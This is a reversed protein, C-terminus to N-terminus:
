LKLGSLYDTKKSKSHCGICNDLPGPRPNWLLNGYRDRMEYRWNDNKTDYGAAMKTMVVLGMKGADSYRAIAVSGEAAKFNSKGINDKLSMSYFIQVEGHGGSGKKLNNMNSFFNKSDFYDFQFKGPAPNTPKVDKALKTGALFDTANAAAHCSSCMAIKGAAPSVKLTGWQDRMEYSWDNNAPDFGKAKKIMVAVGDVGPTADNDFEKIAVTGEPVSFKSSEIQTKINNSYWIRVKGHPSKGLIFEKTETFFDSGAQSFNTNFVGPGKVGTTSPPNNTEDAIDEPSLGLATGALYDKNAAAAHCSICMEIKGAAPEKMLAGTEDRMEYYWDGNKKDFGPDQKIMVAYGSKEETQFKKIAVTGAPVTFAPRGVIDKINSSYWIRVWGHPSQGKVLSGMRTFFSDSTRFNSMFKGPGPKGDDEILKPFDGSVKDQAVDEKDLDAPVFDDTNKESKSESEEKDSNNASSDNQSQADASTNKATQGKGSSQSRGGSEPKCGSAVITLSAAAFLIRIVAPSIM